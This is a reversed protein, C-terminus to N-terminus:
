RSAWSSRIRVGSESGRSKEGSMARAREITAELYDRVRPYASLYRQIFDKAEALSVNFERALRQPGM